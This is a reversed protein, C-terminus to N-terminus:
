KSNQALWVGVTPSPFGRESGWKELVKRLKNEDKVNPAGKVRVLVIKFRPDKSCQQPWRDAPIGAVSPVVETLAQYHCGFHRLAVAAVQGSDRKLVVAAKEDCSQPRCGTLIVFEDLDETLEPMGIAMAIADAFRMQPQLTDERQEGFARQLAGNATNILTASRTVQPAAEQSLAASSLM